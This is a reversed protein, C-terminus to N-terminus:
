DASGLTFGGDVLVQAGTMYRAAPSALFLAVGQVDQAEGLRHMPIDREFPARAEPDRLRGGSINTIFPGPAIANVTIGYRVLELAAQRVLHGVAAKSVVYPTGVRQEVKSASCSATVVIRGRGQPKMARVALQMTHFAADVNVQMVRDWQAHPLDEFLREPNRSDDGRLWGPGGGIGANVFAVDLGGLAQVSAEFAARLADADAVDAALGVCADRAGAIDALRSRAQALREEDLDILAVRAGNVVMAEAIALGIGSAGGTIVTRLGAVSFLSEIKM